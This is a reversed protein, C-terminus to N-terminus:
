KPPEALAEVSIDPPGEEARATVGEVTYVSNDRTDVENGLYGVELAAEYEPLEGESAKPEKTSSRSSRSTTGSSSAEMTM